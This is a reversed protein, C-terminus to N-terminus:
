NPGYDDAGSGTPFAMLPEDDEHHVHHEHEHGDPDDVLM